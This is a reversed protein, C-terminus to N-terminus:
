PGTFLFRTRGSLFLAWFAVLDSDFVIFAFAAFRRAFRHFTRWDLSTRKALFWSVDGAFAIARNQHTASGFSSFHLSAGLILLALVGVLDDFEAVFAHFLLDLPFCLARVHTRTFTVCM